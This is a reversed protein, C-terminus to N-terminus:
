NLKSKLFAQVSDRTIDVRATTDRDYIPYLKNELLIAMTELNDEIIVRNQIRFLMSDGENLWYPRRLDNDVKIRFPDLKGNRAVVVVTLSDGEEVRELAATILSQERLALSDVFEEQQQSEEDGGNVSAEQFSPTTSQSIGPPIERNPLSLVQVLVLAILGIGGAMLGWQVFGRDQGFRVLSNWKENIRGVLIVWPDERHDAKRSKPAVFQRKSNEIPKRTPEAQLIHRKEPEESLTNEDGVDERRTLESIEYGLYEIALERNYGGELAAEYSTSALDLSIGVVSAYSRVFAKLYLRNFLPHENLGDEEFQAIIHPYVKTTARIDDLSVDYKKRIEVLDSLFTNLTQPIPQESM